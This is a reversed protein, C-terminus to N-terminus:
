KKANTSPSRSTLGLHRQLETLVAHLPRRALQGGPPRGRRTHTAAEVADRVLAHAREDGQSAGADHLVSAIQLANPPRPEAAWARIMAELRDAADAERTNQKSRGRQLEGAARDIRAAYDKQEVARLTRWHTAISTLIEAMARAREIPHTAAELRAWMRADDPEPGLEDAYAQRAALERGFPSAPDVVERLTRVTAPKREASAPKPKTRSTSARGM